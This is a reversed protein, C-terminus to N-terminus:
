AEGYYKAFFLFGKKTVRYSTLDNGTERDVPAEHLTYFKINETELNRHIYDEELNVTFAVIPHGIRFVYARLALEPTIHLGIFLLVICSSIIIILKKKMCNGKLNLWVVSLIEYDLIILIM